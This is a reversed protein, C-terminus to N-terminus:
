PTKRVPPFGARMYAVIKWIEDQSLKNKFAPMATKFAQGGESITWLLYSDVSMPMQIMHALLAPSPSLGKAAEGDGMGDTGHCSACHTHYLQGGTALNVATAETTSRAGQYKAPIGEHMFTRHRQMRAQVEPHVGPGGWMHRRM